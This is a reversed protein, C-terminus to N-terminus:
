RKMIFLNKQTQGRYISHNLYTVLDYHIQAGKIRVSEDPFHGNKKLNLSNLKLLGVTVM